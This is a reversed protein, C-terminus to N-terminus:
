DFNYLKYEVYFYQSMKAWGLVCAIQSATSLQFNGSKAVQILSDMYVQAAPSPQMKMDLEFATKDGQYLSTIINNNLDEMYTNFKTIATDREKEQEPTLNKQTKFREAVVQGLNGVYI